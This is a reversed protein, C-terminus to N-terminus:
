FNSILLTPLEDSYNGDIDDFEIQKGNYHLTQLSIYGKHCDYSIIESPYLELKSPNFEETEFEGTFKESKLLETEIVYQRTEVGKMQFNNPMKKQKKRPTSHIFSLLTVTPQKTFLM